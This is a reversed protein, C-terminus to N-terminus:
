KGQTPSSGLLLSLTGLGYFTYEVGVAPDVSAMHFGGTPSELDLAFRHLASLDIEDLAHLDALTLLGTFTSLLDALPIRTNAKLGGEDTQMEVLFDLTKERTDHDMGNLLLLLAVAAATPNTGGRRMPSIEVFGGDDRQRSKVFATMKEPDSIERGILQLCLVVLFTNYTSSSSSDATKVYGGDDRRLNELTRYVADPWAADANAFIDIGASAQLLAASYLLSLFDIIQAQGAMSAQLYKGAKEAVPGKLEGLMALARLAFGTYYLDSDGERGSFGGDANQAQLLYNAHRTRVAEPLLTAGVALRQMLDELYQAM